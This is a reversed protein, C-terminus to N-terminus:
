ASRAGKVRALAVRDRQVPEAPEGLGLRLEGGHGSCARGRQAALVGIREPRGPPTTRRELRKTAKGLCLRNQTGGPLPSATLEARAVFVRDVGPEQV